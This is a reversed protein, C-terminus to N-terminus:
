GKGVLHAAAIGNTMSLCALRQFGAQHFLQGLEEAAPFLRITEALRTYPLGSGALLRATLPMVTLSYVDYLRRFLPNVPKSFELCLLRGGPKLVRHMERAGQRPSTLNRIGFGIMVADVSQDACPLREADGQIWDIRGGLDSHATKRRGVEMMSRTFDCILFRGRGALAKVALRSLDGTGGCVDLVREGPRLKLLDVSKQKWRHHLGFSFLTNMLDYKRAVSEFHARVRAPKDAPDMTEAGFNVRGDGELAEAKNRGSELWHFRGM